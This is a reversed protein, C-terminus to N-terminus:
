VFSWHWFTYELWIWVNTNKQHFISSAWTGHLLLLVLLLVRIVGLIILVWVLIVRSEQVLVFSVIKVAGAIQLFSSASTSAWTGHNRRRSVEPPTSAEVLNEQRCYSSSCCYSCFCGPKSNETESRNLIQTRAQFWLLLILISVLLLQVGQLSEHWCADYVCSRVSDWCAEYVWSRVSDWSDGYVWSSWQSGWIGLQECHWGWTGLKECQSLFACIGLQECHWGWTGLKECQSLFACIGLQECQWRWTGLKECQSLFGWIGLQECQWGM